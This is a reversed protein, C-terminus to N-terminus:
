NGEDSWSVVLCCASTYTLGNTMVRGCASLDASFANPLDVSNHNLYINTNKTQKEHLLLYRVYWTYVATTFISMILGVCIHDVKERESWLRVNHCSFSLWPGAGEPLARHLLPEPPDTSLM